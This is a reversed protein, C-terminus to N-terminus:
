ESITLKFFDEGAFASCEELTKIQEKVIEAARIIGAYVDEAEEIRVSVGSAMHDKCEDALFASVNFYQEGAVVRVAVGVRFGLSRLYIYARLHEM